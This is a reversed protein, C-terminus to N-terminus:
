ERGEIAKLLNRALRQAREWYKQQREVDQNNIYGELDDYIVKAVREVLEADELPDPASLLFTVYVTDVASKSNLPYFAVSSRMKETPKIPVLLYKM